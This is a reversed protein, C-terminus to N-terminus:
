FPLETPNNEVPNSIDELTRCELSAFPQEAIELIQTNYVKEDNDLVEVLDHVKTRVMHDNEAYVYMDVTVLYRKELTPDGLYEKSM